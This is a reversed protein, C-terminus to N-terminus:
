HRFSWGLILSSSSTPLHYSKSNVTQMFTEKQDYGTLNEESGSAQIAYTRYRPSSVLLNASRVGAVRRLACNM